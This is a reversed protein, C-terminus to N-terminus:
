INKSSKAAFMTKSQRRSPLRTRDMEGHVVGDLAGLWKDDVVLTKIEGENLKSYKAYALADLEDDAKKLAQKIEAEQNSLNLWTLLIDTESPAEKGYPLPKEAM